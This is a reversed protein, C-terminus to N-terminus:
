GGGLLARAAGVTVVSGTILVGGGGLEGADALEVAAEIADPLSEAVAVRDVGFVEVAVEGLERAPLARPSPNATAIVLDVVDSLASLIGTADKDAMVAVVGVLRDFTFAESLAGALASAGAPNHAADIIVTPNRRMVEMRGPSDANAFGARVAEVDLQRDPGAGLFAEVAALACAANRAQHYGHLPLVLGDYRGGLGQLILSQGGVAIQRDVVGFEIGERAVAAGVEAARRLLVEAAPPQQGAMIVNAGAHVIGAKEAAIAELTHGLFREHDLSIPTVVAVRSDIVNTADWTGGLGVEIVGADIPADAFITYGLATLVEFFTM